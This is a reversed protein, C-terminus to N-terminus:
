CLEEKKIKYVLIDEYIFSICMYFNYMGTFGLMIMIPVKDGDVIPFEGLLLITFAVSLFGIITMTKHSYTGCFFMMFFVMNCIVLIFYLDVYNFFHGNRLASDPVLCAIVIGALFVFNVLFLIFGIFKM